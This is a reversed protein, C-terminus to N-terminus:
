ALGALELVLSPPLGPGYVAYKTGDGSYLDDSGTSRNTVRIFGNHLPTATYTATYGVADTYSRPLRKRWAAQADATMTTQALMPVETM